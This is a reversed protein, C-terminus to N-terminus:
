NLNEKEFMTVFLDTDNDYIDQMQVLLDSYGQNYALQFYQRIISYMDMELGLNVIGTEEVIEKWRAQALEALDKELKTDLEMGLHNAGNEKREIRAEKKLIISGNSYIM